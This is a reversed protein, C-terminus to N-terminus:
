SWPCRASSHLTDTRRVIFGGGPALVGFWGMVHGKTTHPSSMTSGSRCAGPAERVQEDSDIFEGFTNFGSGYYLDMRILSNCEESVDDIEEPDRVRDDSVIAHLEHSFLKELEAVVVIDM